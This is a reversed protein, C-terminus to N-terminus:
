FQWIFGTTVSWSPQVKAQPFWLLNEFLIIERVLLWRAPRSLVAMVCPQSKSLLLWWFQFWTTSEGFLLFECNPFNHDLQSEKELYEWSFMCSVFGHTQILGALWKLRQRNKFSLCSQKRTPWPINNYIHKNKLIDSTVFYIKMSVLVEGHRKKQVFCQKSVIETPEM